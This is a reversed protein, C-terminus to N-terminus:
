HASLSGKLYLWCALDDTKLHWDRAPSQDRDKHFVKVCNLSATQEIPRGEFPSADYAISIHVDHLVDCLLVIGECKPHQIKEAFFFRKLGQTQHVKNNLAKHLVQLVLCPTWQGDLASVCKSISICACSLMLMFSDHLRRVDHLKFLCIRPICNPAQHEGSDDITGWASPHRAQGRGQLRVGLATFYLSTDKTSGQCRFLM